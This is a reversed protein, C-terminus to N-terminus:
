NERGHSQTFLISKIRVVTKQTSFILKNEGSWELPLIFLVFVMHTDMLIDHFIM